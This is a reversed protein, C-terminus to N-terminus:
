VLLRFSSELDKGAMGSTLIDKSIKRVDGSRPASSSFVGLQVLVLLVFGEDKYEGLLVDVDGILGTNPTM